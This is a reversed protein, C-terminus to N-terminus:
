FNRVVATRMVQLRMNWVATTVISENENIVDLFRNLQTQNAIFEDGAPDNSKGSVVFVSRVKPQKGGCIDHIFDAVKSM